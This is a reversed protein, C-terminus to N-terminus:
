VHIHRFILRNPLELCIRTSCEKSSLCRGENWVLAALPRNHRVRALGQRPPTHAGCTFSNARVEQLAYSGVIIVLILGAHPTAWFSEAVEIPLSVHLVALMDDLLTVQSFLDSADLVSEVLAAPM